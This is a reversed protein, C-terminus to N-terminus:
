AERARSPRTNRILPCHSGRDVGRFSGHLKELVKTHWRERYRRKDFLTAAGGIYAEPQQMAPVNLLVLSNACTIIQVSVASRVRRYV